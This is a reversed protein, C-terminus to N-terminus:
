IHFSSGLKATILQIEVRAVGLDPAVETLTYLIDMAFRSNM